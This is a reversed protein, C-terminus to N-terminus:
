LARRRITILRRTRATSHRITICATLTARTIATRRGRRIGILTTGGHIGDMHGDRGGTAVGIRGDGDLAGVEGAGALAPALFAAAGVTAMDASDELAM